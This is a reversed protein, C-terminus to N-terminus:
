GLWSSPVTGSIQKQPIRSMNLLFTFMVIVNWAMLKRGISSPVFKDTLFTKTLDTTIGKLGKPFKLEQHNGTAESIPESYQPGYCCRQRDLHFLLSFRVVQPDSTCTWVGKEDKTMNYRKNALDVQVLKATPAVVRFMAQRTLANVAPYQSLFTNCSSPKFGEPPPEIRSAERCVPSNHRHLAM